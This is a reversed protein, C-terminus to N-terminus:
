MCRSQRGIGALRSTSHATLRKGLEMSPGYRLRRAVDNPSAQMDKPRMKRQRARRWDATPRPLIRSSCRSSWRGLTATKCGGAARMVIFLRNTLRPSNRGRQPTALTPFGPGCPIVLTPLQTMMVSSIGHPAPIKCSFRLPESLGCDCARQRTLEGLEGHVTKHTRGNRRSPFRRALSAASPTAAGTENATQGVGVEEASLGGDVGMTWPRVSLVGVALYTKM